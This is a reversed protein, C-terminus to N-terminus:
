GGTPTEARPNEYSRDQEGYGAKTCDPCIARSRTIQQYLGNVLFLEVRSVHSSQGGIDRWQHGGFYRGCMPCILWFYGGAKAYLHHAWRPIVTM